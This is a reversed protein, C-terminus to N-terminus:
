GMKRSYKKGSQINQECITVRGRIYYYYYCNSSSHRCLNFSLLEFKCFSHLSEVRAKMVCQRGTVQGLFSRTAVDSQIRTCTKVLLLEFLRM